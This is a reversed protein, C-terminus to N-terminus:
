QWPFLSANIGLVYALVGLILLHLPYFAYFMYKMSKGREGNYGRIFPISALMGVPFLLGALAEAVGVDIDVGAEALGTIVEPDAFAATFGIVIGIVIGAFINFWFALAPVITRKLKENSVIHYLLIMIPGILGWDCTLTVLSILIFLVWFLARKKMNDHLYLIVLGAFLTFMINGGFFNAGFDLVMGLSMMHPIQSILAFVFLRTAYKKIDKTYRYGEVLLLAMIPFTFGGGFQLPFHLAVPIVSGLVLATHQMAMGIIAIMKLTYADYNKPM